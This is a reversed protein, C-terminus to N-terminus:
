CETECHLDDFSGLQGDTGFDVLGLLVDLRSVSTLSDFSANVTDGIDDSAGVAGTVFDTSITMTTWQELALVSQGIQRVDKAFCENPICNGKTDLHDDRLELQQDKFSFRVHVSSNDPHVVVFQFIDLGPAGTQFSSDRKFRFSCTVRKPVQSFSAILYDDKPDNANNDGHTQMQVIGNTGDGVVDASCNKDVKAGTWPPAVAADGIREFHDEITECVNSGDADASAADGRPGSGGSGDVTANANADTGADATTDGEKASFSTCATAVLIAVAGGLGAYLRRGTRM